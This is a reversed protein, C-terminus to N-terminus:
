FSGEPADGDAAVSRLPAVARLARGVAQAALAADELDVTEQPAHSVGTANRVLIMAAPIRQALVGADHGAFCLVEPVAGGLLESCAHALATRLRPDFPQRGSRSATALEIEVGADRALQRAVRTFRDLWKDIAAPQPARVDVWLKVRAPITTTANPEATIRATTAILRDLGESQEEAAVILRAGAALADRRQLPPTTGAHDPRGRIEVELRLRSVLAGVVGAPAGAGAVETSQDIHLEVFGALKGLWGSAHAVGDPDVGAGRLADRLSIGQDDRRELVRPLDLRGALAKSGFTPTNFRAGEEDSFSIVAIPLPSSAAIEFACAVGLPGDFRGGGRVSDLHSGVAWWPSADAPCAWLNGAPDRSLWLGLESAQRAFWARCAADEPTWAMRVVGGSGVGIGDLGSLRRAIGDASIM